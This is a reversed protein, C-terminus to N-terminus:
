DDIEVGLDTKLKAVALEKVISEAEKNLEMTAGFLDFDKWKGDEDKIQFRVCLKGRYQCFLDRSNKTCQFIHPMFMNGNGVFVLDGCIAANENDIDRSIHKSAVWGRGRAVCIMSPLDSNFPLVM